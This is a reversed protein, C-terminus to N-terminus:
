PCNFSWRLRLLHINQELQMKEHKKWYIIIINKAITIVHCCLKLTKTIERRARKKKPKLSRNNICVRAIILPLKCRIFHLLYWKSKETKLSTTLLNRTCRTYVLYRDGLIEAENLSFTSLACFYIGFSSRWVSKLAATTRQRRKDNRVCSRAKLSAYEEM